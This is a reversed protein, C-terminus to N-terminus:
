INKSMDKFSSRFANFMVIEGKETVGSMSMKKNKLLDTKGGVIFEVICAYFIDKKIYFNPYM